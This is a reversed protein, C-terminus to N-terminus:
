CFGSNNEWTALSVGWNAKFFIYRVVHMYTPFIKCNVDKKRRMSFCTCLKWQGQLFIRLQLSWSISALTVTPSSVGGCLVMSFGVSFSVYVVMHGLGLPSIIQCIANFFFEKALFISRLVGKYGLFRGFSDNDIGCGKKINSSDFNLEKM